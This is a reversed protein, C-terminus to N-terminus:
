SNNAKTKNNNFETKNVCRVACFSKFPADLKHLVVQEQLWWALTEREKDRVKFLRSIIHLSDCLRKSNGRHSDAACEGLHRVSKKFVRKLLKRVETWRGKVQIASCTTFSFSKIDLSESRPSRHTKIVQILKTNGPQCLKLMIRSEPRKM